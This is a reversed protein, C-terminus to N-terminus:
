TGLTAGILDPQGLVFDIGSLIRKGEIQLHDLRLLGDGTVAAPGNELQFVAGPLAKEHTVPLHSLPLPFASAIKLRKSKWFTYASPWPTYARVQRDIHAASHAWDILGHDKRVQRAITVGEAPQAQPQLAGSLWSPLTAMLLDAGLEALRDHLSAATERPAVPIARQSLIPGTDLGEDTCMITIGTQTDGALIAAQIPAAGRWRPLLSAHVNLTGHTPIALVDETLIHGTAATVIVDPRWAALHAVADPTRLTKPQYVPLSLSVALEKVAPPRLVRGRGARRDPQTVVGVVSYTGILAKLVPLAFDPTGM